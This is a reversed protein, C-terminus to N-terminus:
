SARVARRSFARARIDDETFAAMLINKDRGREWDYILHIRGDTGQTGDPYSVNKREDIALGGDRTATTKRFFATLDSRGITQRDARTQRPAMTWLRSPPCLFALDRRSPLRRRRDMADATRSRARGIGYGDTRVLMTLSGDKCEVLMHEDCNRRKKPINAAGLLAFSAGRDKSVMVRASNDRGWLAAPMLWDGNKLVIPKNLMVGPFLPKPTTWRPNEDGPDDCTMAMTATLGNGELWWFLWLRGAPDLWPV